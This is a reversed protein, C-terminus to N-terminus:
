QLAVRLRIFQKGSVPSRLRVTVTETGDSNSTVGTELFHEPGTQWSGPELTASTEVFYTIGSVSYGSETTGTGAGALRRFSFTLYQNGSLEVVKYNPAVASPPATPACGAAFKLLNPVGDGTCSAEPELSQSSIRVDDQWALLWLTYPSPTTANIEFIPGVPWLNEGNRPQAQLVFTGPQDAAFEIAAGAPLTLSELPSLERTNTFEVNDIHWGRGSSTGPYYSGGLFTYRFRLLIPTDSYSALSVTRTSFTIESGGAQTYIPTWTAGGDDSIEVVAIQDSTARYLRSRFTLAGSTSPLLHKRYTLTESGIGNHALRYSFSGTDKVSSDLVDYHWSTEVLVRDTSEAPDATCNGIRSVQVTCNEAGPVQSINLLHKVGVLASSTGSITPPSYILRLDEKVNVSGPFAVERQHNIGYGSFTMTRTAVGEPVPVAFGGASATVARYSAGAVTVELGAIGEGPDYFRDGDFDYYAVGVLMPGPTSGSVAFNQTTILGNTALGASNFVGAILGLGLEDFNHNCINKRHGASLFLGQHTARILSETNFPIHGPQWSINEGWTWFGSFIYGATTMRQGPNSGGIGTHSFTNTDLMWQSHERAAALLHPNSALPPKPTNSIAGPPLGENLDIGLSEAEAGPNARARNILELLYQEAATPNGSDYIAQAMSNLPFLM